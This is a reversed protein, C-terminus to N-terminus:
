AVQREWGGAQQTIKRWGQKHKNTDIHMKGSITITVTLVILAVKTHVSPWYIQNQNHYFSNDHVTVTKSQQSSFGPVSSSYSFSVCVLFIIVAKFM